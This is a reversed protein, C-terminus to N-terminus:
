SLTKASNKVDKFASFEGFSINEFKVIINM